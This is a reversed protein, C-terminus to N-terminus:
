LIREIADTIGPLKEWHERPLSALGRQPPPSNDRTNKTVDFLDYETVQTNRKKSIIEERGGGREKRSKPISNGSNFM